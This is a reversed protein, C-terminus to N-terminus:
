FHSVRVLLNFRYNDQIQNKRREEVMQIKKEGEGFFAIKNKEKKV